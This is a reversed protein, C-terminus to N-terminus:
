RQPCVAEICCGPRDCVHERSRERQLQTLTVDGDVRHREFDVHRACRVLHCVDDCVQEAVMAVADGALHEPDAIGSKPRLNGRSLLYDQGLCPGRELAARGREVIGVVDSDDDM